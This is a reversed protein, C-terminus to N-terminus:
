AWYPLNAIAHRLGSRFSERHTAGGRRISSGECQAFQFARLRVLEFPAALLREFKLWSVMMLKIQEQSSV